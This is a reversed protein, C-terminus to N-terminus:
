ADSDRHHRVVRAGLGTLLEYPLADGAAALDEIAAHRGFVEVIDGPRVEPAASVDLTSLDMSVRGIFPARVGGVTASAGQALRRPLGDAYGVSAIAVRRPAPARYAAGYGVTAGVDVDRVQLIPAYLAAAPKLAVPGAASPDVGLLAVGSRVVDHRAHPDALAAASNALCARAGPFLCRIAQFDTCQAANMAHDPDEACAFHSMVLHIPVRAGREALQAAEDPRLGLRNMGTDVHLAAPPPNAHSQTAATWLTVQDLSNLVPILRNAFIINEAGLVPGDLVLITADSMSPAKRLKAGEAATAVFFLRCGAGHLAQSVSSAGLGYADCKVVASVEAPRVHAAITRYNLRIAALDVDLWPTDRVHTELIEDM